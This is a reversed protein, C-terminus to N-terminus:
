ARLSFSFLVLMKNAENLICKWDENIRRKEKVTQMCYFSNPWKQKHYDKKQNLNWVIQRQKRATIETHACRILWFQMKIEIFMTMSRGFESSSCVCSISIKKGVMMSLLKVHLKKRSTKVTKQPWDIEKKVRFWKNEHKIPAIYIGTAM